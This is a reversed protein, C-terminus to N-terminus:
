SIGIIVSSGDMACKEVFKRLDPIGQAVYEWGEEGEEVLSDSLYIEAAVMAAPDYRARLEGDSINSLASHFETVQANGIVRGPGYGIDEGIEEGNSMLLEFSEANPGNTLTFDLAHWAKDFEICDGLEQAEEDFFFDSFQSADAKLVALDSDTAKRLYLIMGV